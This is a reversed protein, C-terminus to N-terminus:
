ILGNGVYSEFVTRYQLRYHKGDLFIGLPAPTASPGYPSNGHSVSESVLLNKCGAACMLGFCLYQAFQADGGHGSLFWIYVEDAGM